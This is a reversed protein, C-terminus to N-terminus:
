AGLYVGNSTILGVAYAILVLAGRKLSALIAQVVAM